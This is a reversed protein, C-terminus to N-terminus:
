DGVQVIAEVEVPINGPLAGMGVASRAARGNEGFVEVMLDSFGNIVKPQTGFDPTCNVMGLVKVFRSVRDLSGLHARLTALVALGVVRAAANAEEEGMEEGVKGTIMTGDTQVPGHGSVYCIDGVQVVPMYTGGPTPPTPLELGLEAIRAEASMPKEQDTERALKGALRFRDRAYPSVEARGFWFRGSLILRKCV